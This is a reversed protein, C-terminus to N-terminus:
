SYLLTVRLGDRIWPLLRAFRFCLPFMEPSSGYHLVYGCAVRTYALGDSRRTLERLQSPRSRPLPTQFVFHYLRSYMVYEALRLSGLLLTHMNPYNLSLCPSAGLANNRLDIHIM